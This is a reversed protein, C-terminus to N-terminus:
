SDGDTRPGVLVRLNAVPADRPVDLVAEGKAGLPASALLRADSSFAYASFEARQESKTLDILEANVHIKLRGQEKTQTTAKTAM